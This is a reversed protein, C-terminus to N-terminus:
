NALSPHDNAAKIMKIRKIHTHYHFKTHSSLEIKMYQCVHLQGDVLSEFRHAILLAPFPLIRKKQALSCYIALVNKRSTEARRGSM